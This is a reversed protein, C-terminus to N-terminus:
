NPLHKLIEPKYAPEELIRRGESNLRYRLCSEGAQSKGSILVLQNLLKVTRASIAVTGIWCSLSCQIIEASEWDKRLEADRMLRLAREMAPTLLSAKANVPQSEPKTVPTTM